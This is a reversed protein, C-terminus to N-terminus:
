LVTVSVTKGMMVESPSAPMPHITRESTKSQKLFVRRVPPKTSIAMVTVSSKPSSVSFFMMQRRRGHLTNVSKGISM